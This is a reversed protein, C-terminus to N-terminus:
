IKGGPKIIFCFSCEFSEKKKKRRCTHEAPLGGEQTGGTNREALREKWTLCFVMMGETVSVM